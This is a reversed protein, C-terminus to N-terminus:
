YLLPLMQRLLLDEKVASRNVLNSFLSIPRRSSQFNNDVFQRL